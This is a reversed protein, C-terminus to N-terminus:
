YCADIISHSFPPGNAQDLESCEEKLLRYYLEPYRESSFFANFGRKVRAGRTARREIAYELAQELSAPEQWPFIQGKHTHSGSLL